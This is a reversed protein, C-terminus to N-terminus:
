DKCFSPPSNVTNETPGPLWSIQQHLCGLACALWAMCRRGLVGLEVVGWLLLCCSKSPWALFLWLRRAMPCLIHCYQVANGRWFAQEAGISRSGLGGLCARLRLAVAVDSLGPLYKPCHWQRHVSSARNAGLLCFLVCLSSAAGPLAAETLQM